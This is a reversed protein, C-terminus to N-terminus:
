HALRYAFRILTLREKEQFSQVIEASKERVKVQLVVICIIAIIEVYM